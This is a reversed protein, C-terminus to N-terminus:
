YINQCPQFTATEGGGKAEYVLLDQNVQIRGQDRAVVCQRQAWDSLTEGWKQAQQKRAFEDKQKDFEAPNSDQREKLRAVIFAGGVEYVKDLAAPEKLEFVTKTLDPSVGIQAVVNGRREFLGTEEVRPGKDKAKQPTKPQSAPEDESPPEAKAYLSELKAGAKVKAFAADAMQKARTKRRDTVMITEAIQREAQALAVDGERKAEVKLVHYGQPGKLPEGILEGPQAAEIKKEAAPGLMLRKVDRFGLDGGRARTAEDESLKSALAAFSEGKQARALAAKAAALQKQEAEPKAGPAVKFLISRVRAQPKLKQFEFSHSKYYDEIAKKHEKMYAAIEAESPDALELKQPDFRVYELNVKTHEQDYARRVEDASLKLAGRVLERMREALMERREEEIFRRLSMNLQFQIFRELLTRDFQDQKFIWGRVNQRVGLVVMRGDELMEEVDRDSVHLGLKEAEQAFLEREILKSMIREKLRLARAREPRMNPGNYVFWGFYFAGDSLEQAGVKAATGTHAAAGGCGQSQPGFNIVFVAIIIGFFVYIL